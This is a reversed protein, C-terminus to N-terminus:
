DAGGEDRAVSFDIIRTRRGPEGPAYREARAEALAQREYVGAPAADIVSAGTVRGEADVEVEVQVFGSVAREAIRGPEFLPPPPPELEPLQRRPEGILEAVDLSDYGVLLELPHAEIEDEGGAHRDFAGYLEVSVVVMAAVVVSAALFSGIFRLVTM